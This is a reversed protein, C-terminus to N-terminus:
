EGAREKLVRLLDGLLAVGQVRVFAEVEVAM